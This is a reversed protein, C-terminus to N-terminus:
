AGHEPIAYPAFPLKYGTIAMTFGHNVQRM